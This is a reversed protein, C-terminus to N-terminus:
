SILAKEYLYTITQPVGKQKEMDIYDLWTERDVSSNEEFQHYTIKEEYKGKISALTSTNLFLTEIQNLIMM